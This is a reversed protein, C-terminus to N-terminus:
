SNLCLFRTPQLPNLGRVEVLARGGAGGSNYARAGANAMLTHKVGV